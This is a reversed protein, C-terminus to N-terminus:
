ARAARPRQPAVPRRREAGRRQRRRARRHGQRRHRPPGAGRRADRARASQRCRAALAIDACRVAGAPDRLQLSLDACLTYTSSTPTGPASPASSWPARPWCTARRPSRRRRSCCARSRWAPAGASRRSSCSRRKTAASRSCAAASTNSTRRRPGPRSKAAREFGALAADFQKQEFHPLRRPVPGRGAGLGRGRGRPPHARSVHLLLPAERRHRVRRRHEKTQALREYPGAREAAGYVRYAAVYREASKRWAVRVRRRTASCKSAPSAAAAVAPLSVARAAQARRRAAHHRLRRAPDVADGRADSRDEARPLGLVLVRARRRQLRRGDAARARHLRARLRPRRRRREHGPVVRLRPRRRARPAMRAGALVRPDAQDRRRRRLHQAGADTVVAVPRQLRRPQRRGHADAIKGVFIGDRTFIQVRRNGTDAVYLYDALHMGGIDSFEGDRSGSRGVTFRLTGDHRSSASAAATAHDRHRARRVRRAERATSRAPSRPALVKGAADLARRPRQARRPVAARGRHLRLRARMGARRREARRVSPLREPQPAPAAAEPLASSSSRARQRRRRDGARPRRHGARARRLVPRPRPRPQRLPPAGPRRGTSRPSTATAATPSSCAGACTPPSRAGARTRAARCRKRRSASSCARRHPRLDLHARQRDARARLRARRRRGRGPVAQRARDGPRAGAGISHLFVGFESYVAVRNNGQDAVYLRRHVSFALGEPDDLEGDGSAAAPSCASPAQGARRAGRAPRQAHQRGRPAGGGM